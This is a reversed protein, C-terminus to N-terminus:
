CKKMATWIRQRALSFMAFVNVYCGTLQMFMQWLHIWHEKLCSLRFVKTPVSERRSTTTCTLLILKSLTDAATFVKRYNKWTDWLLVKTNILISAARWLHKYIIINQYYAAFKCPFVWASTHNGYLESFVKNFDCKPMPTIRYIQQM